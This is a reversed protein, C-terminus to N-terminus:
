LEAQAAQFRGDFAACDVFHFPPYLFPRYGFERCGSRGQDDTRHSLAGGFRRRAFRSLVYLREGDREQVFLYVSVFFYEGRLYECVLPRSVVTGLRHFLASYFMEFFAIRACVRSHFIFRGEENEGNQESAFFVFRFVNRYKSDAM